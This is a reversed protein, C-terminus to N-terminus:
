ANRSNKSVKAARRQQERLITSLGWYCKKISFGTVLDPPPFSGCRVSAHLGGITQFGFIDKVEKANRHPERAKTNM